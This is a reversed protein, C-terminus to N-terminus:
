FCWGPSEQVKEERSAVFTGRSQVNRAMLMIGIMEFRHGDIVAPMREKALGQTHVLADLAALSLLDEALKRIVGETRKGRPHQTRLACLEREASRQNGDFREVIKAVYETSPACGGIAIFSRPLLECLLDHM